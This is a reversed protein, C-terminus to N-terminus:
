PRQGLGRRPVQAWRGEKLDLEFARLGSIPFWLVPRGDSAAGVAFEPPGWAGLLTRGPDPVAEALSAPWRGEHASSWALLQARLAEGREQTQALDKPWRHAGLLVGLLLAACWLGLRSPHPGLDPWGYFRRTGWSAGGLIAGVPAGIWGVSFFLLGHGHDYRALEFMLACSGASLLGLPAWAVVPKLRDTLTTAGFFALVLLCALLPDSVGLPM